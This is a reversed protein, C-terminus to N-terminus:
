RVSCPPREEERRMKCSERNLNRSIVGERLMLGQLKGQLTRQQFRSRLDQADDLLEALLLVEFDDIEDDGYNGKGKLIMMM